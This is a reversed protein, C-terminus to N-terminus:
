YRYYKNYLSESMRYAEKEWPTTIKDPNSTYLKNKWKIKGSSYNKLESLIYQKVHILEHIYTEILERKRLTDALRITFNRPLYENDTYYCIGYAQKTTILNKDIKVHLKLNNLLRPRLIILKPIIFNSVEKLLKRTDKDPCQSIKLNM